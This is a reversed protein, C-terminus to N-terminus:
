DETTSLYEDYKFNFVEKTIPYYTAECGSYTGYGEYDLLNSGTLSLDKEIFIINDGNKGGFDILCNGEVIPANNTWRMIFDYYQIGTLTFAIIFTTSAVFIHNPFDLNEKRKKYIRIVYILAVLTIVTSLLSYLYFRM